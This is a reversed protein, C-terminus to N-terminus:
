LSKAMRIEWLGSDNPIPQRDDTQAFGIKEYFGRARDNSDEVWLSAESAGKERGWDELLSFTREGIGRGRFAPSIFVSVFVLVTRRRKLLGINLAVPQDGSLGLVTLQNQGLASDRARDIWVQDEYAAAEAHTTVYASPTDQLAELRIAKVAEWEHPWIPRVEVDPPNQDAASPSTM